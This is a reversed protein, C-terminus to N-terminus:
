KRHSYKIYRETMLNVGMMLTKTISVCDSTMNIHIQPFCISFLVLMNWGQRYLSLRKKLHNLELM